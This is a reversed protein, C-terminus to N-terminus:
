NIVVEPLKYGRSDVTPPTAFIKEGAETSPEPGHVRSCFEKTASSQSARITRACLLNSSDSNGDPQCGGGMAM